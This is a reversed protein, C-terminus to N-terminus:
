DPMRVTTIRVYDNENAMMLIFGRNDTAILRDLDALVRFQPNSLRKLAKALPATLVSEGMATQTGEALDVHGDTTYVRIGIENSTHRAISTIKIDGTFSHQADALKDLLEAPFMTKKLLNKARPKRKAKTKRKRKRKLKAHIPPKLQSAM